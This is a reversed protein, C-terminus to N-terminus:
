EDMVDRRLGTAPSADRRSQLAYLAM